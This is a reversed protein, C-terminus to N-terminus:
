CCLFFNFGIDSEPITLHETMWNVAWAYLTSAKDYEDENSIIGYVYIEGIMSVMEEDEWLEEINTSVVTGYM